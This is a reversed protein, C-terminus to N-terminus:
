LIHLSAYFLTARVYMENERCFRIEPQSKELDGEKMLTIVFGLAYILSYHRGSRGAV